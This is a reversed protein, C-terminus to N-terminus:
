GYLPALTTLYPGQASFARNELTRLPRDRASNKRVIVSLCDIPQRKTRWTILEQSICALGNAAAAAAVKEATVSPDRWHNSQELLGVRRLAGGLGKVRSARLYRQYNGLNSHHLFAAGEPALVRDLQAVYAAMVSADAHVLSDFSFVFDISGSAVVDLSTGDNVHFEVNTSSAFRERCAEVCSENLDIGILNTALDRLYHTWRGFGCAVELITGCPVFDHVRPLLTGYWQLDPGGWQGSWEGGDREWGYSQGWQRSNDDLSPM